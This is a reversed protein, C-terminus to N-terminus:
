RHQRAGRGHLLTFALVLLGMMSAISAPEPIPTLSILYFSSASLAQQSNSGGIGLSGLVEASVGSGNGNGSGSRGPGGDSVITTMWEPEDGAVATSLLYAARYLEAETAVAVGGGAWAAADRTSALNGPSTVGGLTYVGTETDGTTLWNSFRAMDWFSVRQVPENEFGSNVTYVFAGSPRESSHRLEGGSWIAVTSAM